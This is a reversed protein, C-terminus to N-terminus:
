REVPLLVWYDFGNMKFNRAWYYNRFIAEKVDEPYFLARFIVAGFARREIMAIMHSTDLMGNKSLNLLQTPNTVVDKGALLTPMAEESWVPGEVNRIVEVMAWGNAVDAPDLLHGLQTFGASDYYPYPPYSSPADAVGIVRAITGFVRGSTPLHVNLAAQLFFVLAALSTAIAPVYPTNRRADQMRLRADRVDIAHHARRYVQYTIRALFAATCVCSAAIAAILYAPGAGWKGTLMGMASGTVFYLSWITIPRLSRARVARVVDWAVYLVSCAVLVGQLRLWQGYTQWTVAIDYENVNALVVNLWFQGNTAANLALVLASTVLAGAVFAVAFWKPRRILLYAFGAVLADVAQLKTFGAILLLAVGLACYVIRRASQSDRRADFALDLCSIGAFAFMVMPLHARALPGVQYVYNAAFFALAALIPVILHSLDFLPSQLNSIPFQPERRLRWDGIELRESQWLRRAAFFILAGIVLSSAFALARGVWLHPGFLAVLPALMLRYVPPYNSSYFPFQANDLYIGEGRALRIADYLEFGEGQDYDFPFGFLARAYVLYVVFYGVFIAVTLALAAVSLSSLAFTIRSHQLARPPATPPTLEEVVISGSNVM